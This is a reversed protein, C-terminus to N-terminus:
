RVCRVYYNNYKYMPGDDGDKFYMGWAESAATIDFTSSWYWYSATGPFAATDIAPDYRGYDVISQLEFQHPLRWDTHGALDLTDCYGIADDWSRGVGDDERQWILGTVNDTVTGESNVTFDMPHNVYQADQGFFPEGPAPCETEETLNYCRHQGSDPLLSATAWCLSDLGDTLGDCDDDVGNGCVEIVGPHVFARTDDCDLGPCPCTESAPSGYGDEDRDLCSCQVDDMDAQGDCDDDIGNDCIEEAGPNVLPDSDDCDPEPAQCTVAAPAGYGDGDQDTCICQPDEADALGDCDDDITNYCDETAAPNVFYNEDDCDAEPHPCDDSAPFGYGDFDYDPCACQPDEGDSLGNCDDDIGNFCFEIVGPNVYRNSDDCDLEPYDCVASAPSGYGDHDNDICPSWTDQGMLFMGSLVLIGVCVLILSSRFM